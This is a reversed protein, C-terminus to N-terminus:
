LLELVGRNAGVKRINFNLANRGSMKAALVRSAMNGSISIENLNYRKKLDVAVEKRIRELVNVLSEDTRIHMSGM